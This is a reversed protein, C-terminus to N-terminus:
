VHISRIWYTVCTDHSQQRERPATAESSSGRKAPQKGLLSRLPLQTNKGRSDALHRVILEGFGLREDLERVLVSGGDSTVRSGRFDVKLRAISRSSFPGNKRRLRQLIKGFQYDVQIIPIRTLNRRSQRVHDRAEVAPRSGRRRRTTPSAIERRISVRIVKAAGRAETSAAPIYGNSIATIIEVPFAIAPNAQLLKM